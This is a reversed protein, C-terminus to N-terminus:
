EKNDHGARLSAFHFERLEYRAVRDRRAARIASRSSASAFGKISTEYDHDFARAFLDPHIVTSISFSFLALIINSVINEDDDDDDDDDIRGYIKNYTCAFSAYVAV